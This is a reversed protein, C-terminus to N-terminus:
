SQYAAMVDTRLDSAEGESLTPDPSKTGIRSISEAKEALRREAAWGSTDPLGLSTRLAEGMLIASALRSNPDKALMQAFFGDLVPPANAILRTLSTPAENLQALRVQLESREESEFPTRGTLMEFLVIAAAYLDSRTDISSSSVQEPSMYAGTGPAANGTARKSAPLRAIGFDTLKIVGDPRVLVNSPKVDRHIIGIAHTAALAGLLQSFINWAPVMPIAPQSTGTRTRAAGVILESLPKGHVFEMVIAVHGSSEALGFFHVINPHSLRSLAEAEGLFLQELRESGRLMPNLIKVAVPHSPLARVTQFYNLEGRRVLGMGGRGILKGLTVEGIELRLRSGEELHTPFAQLRTGCHPCYSASTEVVQAACAVCVVVNACYRWESDLPWKGSV